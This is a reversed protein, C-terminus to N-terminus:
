IPRPSLALPTKPETKTVVDEFSKLHKPLRLKLRELLIAQHETPNSICRQRLTRGCRTRMVVDVARVQAIEDLVKRPEDGLGAAKCWQGLTKWLV